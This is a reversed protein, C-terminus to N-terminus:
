NGEFNTQHVPLTHLLVTGSSDIQGDQLGQTLEAGAAPRAGPSQKAAESRRTCDGFSTPGMRLGVIWINGVLYKHIVDASRKCRRGLLPLIM